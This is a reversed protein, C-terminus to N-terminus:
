AWYDLEQAAGRIMTCHEIGGIIFNHCDNLSSPIQINNLEGAQSKWSYCVCLRICMCVRPLIWPTCVTVQSGGVGEATFRLVNINLVAGASLAVFFHLTSHPQIIGLQTWSSHVVPVGLLRRHLKITLGWIVVGCDGQTQSNSLPPARLSSCVCIYDM